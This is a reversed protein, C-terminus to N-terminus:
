VHYQTSRSCAVSFFDSDSCDALHADLVLSGGLLLRIAVHLNSSMTIALSTNFPSIDACLRILYAAIASRAEEAAYM